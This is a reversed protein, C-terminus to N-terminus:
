PPSTSLVPAGSPSRASGSAPEITLFVPLNPSIDGRVVGTGSGDAVGTLAGRAQLGKETVAWVQYVSGAPPPQLGEVSILGIESGDIYVLLGRAGNAGSLERTFVENGANRQLSLNWVLLAIVLLALTGIALRPAALRWGSLWRRRPSVQAERALAMVSRRLRAPPEIEYAAMQLTGGAARLNGISADHASCGGIHQEFAAREDPPLAGLVYAASLEDVEHCNM